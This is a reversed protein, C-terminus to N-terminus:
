ERDAEAAALVSLVAQTSQLNGIIRSPPAASLKIMTPTVLVDDRAGLESRELVDIVELEAVLETNPAHLAKLHRVAAHSNPSDGAVYLRLRLPQKKGRMTRQSTM